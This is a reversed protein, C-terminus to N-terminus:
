KQMAREKLKYARDRDFFLKLPNTNKKQGEM